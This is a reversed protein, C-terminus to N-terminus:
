AGMAVRFGLDDAQKDSEYRVRATCTAFDAKNRFSGGRCIRLGPPEADERGDKSNYPYRFQADPFHEGWRTSTWEWINGAMDACGAPSDGAPSFCGVETTGGIGAPGANCRAADFEDGWPYLLGAAGRAAHEWEAETPLRYPRGTRESLWACYARADLWSVGVMPHNLKGPPPESGIPALVWGSKQGVARGTARVFELYERNTVPFRGIHYPGLQVQAAPTELKSVGPGPPRGVTRVGGAVCVLDPEFEQRAMASGPVFLRGGKVRLFLVPCAWAPDKLKFVLNRAENLARDVQGEELLRRYFHRTLAYALDMPVRDQMAIVAPVGAQALGPGLGVFPNIGDNLRGASDRPRSASECAALFILRPPPSIGALGPVLTDEYVREFAGRAVNHAGEHELVLCGAEHGNQDSPKLQGHALIHLMHQDYLHSQINSWSTVGDVIHWGYQRMRQRLEDSLGTRGPILTGQVDGKHAGVLDMLARCEREVDIRKLGQPLPEPNAIAVLMRLPREQVPPLDAATAILFRSFPTRAATALAVPESAFRHFLREWPLAQLEPADAFLVLQVRLTGSAGVQGVLRQYARGLESEPPLVNNFLASGYDDWSFAHEHELLVQRDIQVRGQALPSGDEQLLVRYATGDRMVFISLNVDSAMFGKRAELPAVM